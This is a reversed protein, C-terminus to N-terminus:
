KHSLIETPKELQVFRIIGCTVKEGKWGVLLIQQSTMVCLATIGTNMSIAFGGRGDM